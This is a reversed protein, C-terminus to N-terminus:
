RKMIRRKSITQARKGGDAFLSADRIFFTLRKGTLYGRDPDYIAPPGGTLVIRGAAADYDAHQGTARRAPRQTLRVNGNAVARELEPNASASTLYIELRDSRFTTAGSVMQVNGEYVAKHDLGSYQLKTARVTVTQPLAGPGTRAAAGPKPQAAPELLTTTVGEGSTLRHHELDLDLIPSAIRDAGRWARVGGEFLATRRSKNVTMRDALVIVPPNGPSENATVPSDFYVAQVGDQAKAVGRGIGIHMHPAQVRGSPDWVVPNGSLTLQQSAADYVAKKATARTAGQQFAFHGTQEAGKLAGNAPDITALFNDASSVAPLSGQATRAALRSPQDMIRTSSSGSIKEIQGHDDFSMQLKGASLTQSSLRPDAPLLQLQSAGLTDAEKLLGGPLFILSMEPATLIRRSAARGTEHGPDLLLKVNGSATAFRPGSPSRPPPLTLTASDASLRRLAGSKMDHDNVTVGGNGYILQVRGTAPNLGAELHGATSTIEGGGGSDRAQVGTLAFHSVQNQSDLLVVGAEASIKQTGQEITVPSSLSIRGIRKDYILGGAAIQASGGTEGALVFSVDKRLVLNG